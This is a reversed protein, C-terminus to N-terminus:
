ELKKYYFLDHNPLVSPHLIKIFDKLILHPNIVGSEYIDFGGNASVRASYNYVEGTQYAKFKEYRKDMAAVDKKSFAVGIDLWKDAEYAKAFVAEFDLELSSTEKTHSWLYNGSADAIYQAVFSQGGPMFWTGQYSTGCFVTPMDSIAAVEKKLSLYDAEINSFISAAVELNGNLVGFFKIWEARALPSVDIYEGVMVPTLGLNQLQHLDEPPGGIGYTLVIQPQLSVLLEYNLGMEDGLDKIGGGQYRSYLLSDYAYKAGSIGLIKDTAKLKNLFAAHTTSLCTYTNVPAKIFNTVELDSLSPKENEYVVYTYVVNAAGKWPNLVKLITYGEHPEITFNQAYKVLDSNNITTNDTDTSTCASMLLLLCPITKLIIYKM